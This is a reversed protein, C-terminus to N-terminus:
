AKRTKASYHKIEKAAFSPSTKTAAPRSLFSRPFIKKPNTNIPIVRCGLKKLLKITIISGAGNCSDVVVKFKNRRIGKINVAELVANIHDTHPDKLIKYSGKKQSRM